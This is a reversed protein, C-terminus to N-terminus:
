RYFSGSPPTVPGRAVAPGASADAVPANPPAPSQMAPSMPIPAGSNMATQNSPGMPIPYSVPISAQTAPNIPPQQAYAAPLLQQRIADQQPKWCAGTADDVILGPIGGVVVNGIIWPNITSRIPVQTTQYGPAEITATYQAPLFWKGNRDLSVVAPTNVSAVERGSKDQITVHAATPYTDIAVNAHRGSIISACGSPLVAACAALLLLHRPKPTINMAM